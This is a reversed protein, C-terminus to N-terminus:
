YRRYRRDFYYGLGGHEKKIKSLHFASLQLLRGFIIGPTASATRFYRDTINAKVSPIAKEQIRELLAFLRGALYAPNSNSKDLAMTLTKNSSEKQTQPQTHRSYPQEPARHRPYKAPTTM